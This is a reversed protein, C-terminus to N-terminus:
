WHVVWHWLFQKEFQMSYAIKSGSKEEWHRRGMTCMGRMRFHTFGIGIGWRRVKKLVVKPFKKYDDFEELRRGRRGLEEEEDLSRPLVVGSYVTGFSGEGLRDGVLFDKRKWNRRGRVAEIVSQVPAWLYTDFAGRLVGPRATLYVWAVSAGGVLKVREGDALGVVWSVPGGLNSGSSAFQALVGGPDQVGQQITDVWPFQMVVKVIENAVMKTVSPKSLKRCVKRDRQPKLNVFLFSRNNDGWISSGTPRHFSSAPAKVVGTTSAGMVGM